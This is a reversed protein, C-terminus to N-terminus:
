YPGNQFIGQTFVAAIGLAIVNYLGAVRVLISFALIAGVLFKLRDYKLYIFVTLLLSFLDLCRSM